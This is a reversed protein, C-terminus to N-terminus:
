GKPGFIRILGSLGIGLMTAVIISGGVLPQGNLAVVVTAVLAGFAILAGIIQGRTEINRRHDSESVWNKTIISQVPEPYERFIEPPPLPAQWNRIRVFQILKTVAKPDGSKVAELIEVPVDSLDDAEEPESVKETAVAPSRKKDKKDGDNM